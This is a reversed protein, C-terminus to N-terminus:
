PILFKAIVGGLLQSAVAGEVNSANWFRSKLRAIISEGEEALQKDAFKKHLHTLGKGTLQCSRYLEHYGNV